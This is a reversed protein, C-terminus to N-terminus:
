TAAPEVTNFTHIAESTLDERPATPQSRHLIRTSRYKESWTTLALLGTLGCFCLFAGWEINASSWTALSDHFLVSTGLSISSVGSFRM